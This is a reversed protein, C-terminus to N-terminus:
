KNTQKRFLYLNYLMSLITVSILVYIYLPVNKQSQMAAMEQNVRDVITMGTKAMETLVAKRINFQGILNEVLIGADNYELAYVKYTGLKGEPLNAIRFEWLGNENVQLPSMALQPELNLIFETNPKGTGRLVLENNALLNISMIEASLEYNYGNVESLKLTAGSIFKSSDQTVVKEVVVPSCSVSSGQEEQWGLVSGLACVPCENNILEQNVVTVSAFKPTMAMEEGLYVQGNILSAPRFFYLNGAQLGNITVSHYTRNESDIASRYDYSYNEGSTSALVSENGYYVRADGAINTYWTLLVSNEDIQFIQQNSISPYITSVGGGGGGGSGGGGPPCVPCCSDCAGCVDCVPCGAGAAGFVYYYTPMVNSPASLDRANILVLVAQGGGFDAIPDITIEYDNPASLPNVTFTNPGALSYEVGAVEVVLSNLDVGAGVDHIQFVVNSNASISVDDPAPDENDIYPPHVDSTMFSYNHTPMVNPGPAHLDAGDVSVNVTYAPPFDVAPNITILYNEPTGSYTFVNPGAATYTIGDVVVVVSNINVGLGPIVGAQNKYDKIRFVVNTDVPRNVSGPAPNENEVYPAHIDDETTFSWTANATHVTPNGLDSFSANVTILTLYPFYGAPNVIASCVPVRNANTTTCTTNVSEAVAGSGQDVTAARTANNVGSQNDKMNYAIAAEVPVNIAGNLPNYGDFYPNDTDTVLKLALNEVSALIDIGTGLQAINTDVTSGPTYDFNLAFAPDPDNVLVYFYGYVALANNTYSNGPNQYASLKIQTASVSNGGVPYVNYLGGTYVTTAPTVCNNQVITANTNNYNIIVDAGGTAQNGTHLNINVRFCRGEYFEDAGVGQAEAATLTFMPPPAAQATKISFNFSSLILVMSLFVHSITLIKQKIKHM